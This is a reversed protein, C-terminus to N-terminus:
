GHNIESILTRVKSNIEEESINELLKNDTLYQYILSPLNNENPQIDKFIDLSIESVNLTTDDKEKNNKCTYILKPFQQSTIRHLVSCVESSNSILRIFGINDGFTKDLISIYEKIINEITNNDLNLRITLFLTSKTNIVFKSKWSEPDNDFRTFVYFGKDEEEGHALREFSGCYYINRYRGRTHLHGMIIPGNVIKDFQKCNFTCPPLYPTEKPVAHEFTGHGILLDVNPYGLINLTCKLREIIDESKKYNLNDPIYAVRLSLKPESLGNKFDTIEEALIENIIRYRTLPKALTKFVDLQGRDHSYTGHLIRIQMGTKASITFIDSIFQSAYVHATSGVTLLQDYIDGAIILLHCHYFEPYLIEKLNQYITSPPIRPNGFHLDSVAVMKFERAM